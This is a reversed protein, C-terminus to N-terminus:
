TIRRSSSSNLDQRSLHCEDTLWDDLDRCRLVCSGTEEFTSIDDDEIVFGVEFDSERESRERGLHM